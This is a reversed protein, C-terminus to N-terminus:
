DVQYFRDERLLADDVKGNFPLVGKDRLLKVVKPPACQPGGSRIGNDDFKLGCVPCRDLDLGAGCLSCQYHHYVPADASGEVVDWVKDFEGLLVLDALNAEVERYTSRGGRLIENWDKTLAAAVEVVTSPYRMHYPNDRFTSPDQFIYLIVSKINPM